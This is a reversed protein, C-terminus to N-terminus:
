HFTSNLTTVSSFSNDMSGNPQPLFFFIIIVIIIIILTGTGGAGTRTRVWLGIAGLPRTLWTPWYHYPHYHFSGPTACLDGSKQRVASSFRLFDWIFPNHSWDDSWIPDIEELNPRYSLVARWWTCFFISLHMITFQCIFLKKTINM